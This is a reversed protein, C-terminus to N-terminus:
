TGTCFADHYLRLLLHDDGTPHFPLLIGCAPCAVLGAATVTALVAVRLACALPAACRMIRRTTALLMRFGNCIIAPGPPLACTCRLRPLAATCAPQPTYHATHTHTHM